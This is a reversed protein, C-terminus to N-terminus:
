YYSFSNTSEERIKIPYSMAGTQSEKFGRSKERYMTTTAKEDSNSRVSKM